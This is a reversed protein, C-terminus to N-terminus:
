GEGLVICLTLFDVQIVGAKKLIKSCCAMTSGTTYIDDILLVRQGANVPKVVSFARSLNMVRQGPSLSKQPATWHTRVLTKTDVPLNLAQGIGKALIEAQNYGRHRRKRSHLPIPMITTIGRSQIWSGYHKVMESIYFRAYHKQHKYKYAYVSRAATKNYLWLGHGRDFPYFHKECAHCYQTEELGVPRGCHKCCPEAAWQLKQKCAEHALGEEPRLIERCLPCVPPYIWDLLKNGAKTAGTKMQELKM